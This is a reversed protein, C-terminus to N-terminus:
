FFGTWRYATCVPTRKWKWTRKKISFCRIRRNAVLYLIMSGTRKKSYAEGTQRQVILFSIGCAVAPVKCGFRFQLFFDAFSEDATAPVMPEEEVAAMAETTDPPATLSDIEETLTEFPGNEKKWRWLLKDAYASLSRNNTKENEINLFFRHM